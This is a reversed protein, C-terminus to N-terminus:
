PSASQLFPDTDLTDWRLALVFDQLAAEAKHDAAPATGRVTIVWHAAQFFYLTAPSCDKDAASTFSVKVGTIEPQGKLAFPKESASTNCSGASAGAEMAAKATALKAGAAASSPYYIDVAATRRLGDSQMVYISTVDDNGDIQMPTGELVFPGIVRPFVWGSGHHWYADQRSFQHVPDAVGASVFFLCAFVTAAVSRFDSM